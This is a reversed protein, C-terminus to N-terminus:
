TMFLLLATLESSHLLMQLGYMYALRDFLVPVKVLLLAAAPM